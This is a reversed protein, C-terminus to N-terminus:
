AISKEIVSCTHKGMYKLAEASETASFKTSRGMDKALKSLQDLDKGTAGSIASVENMGAEFDSATKASAVGVGVIPLTLGMTLKKGVSTIGKGLKQLGEFDKSVDKMNKSMGNLASSFSKANAVIRVSLTETAM